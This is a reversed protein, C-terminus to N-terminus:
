CQVSHFQKNKRNNICGCCWQDKRACEQSSESGGAATTATANDAGVYHSRKGDAEFDEGDGIGFGGDSWGDSGSPAASTLLKLM